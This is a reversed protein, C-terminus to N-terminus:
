PAPAPAFPNSLVLGEVREFDRVNRTVLSLGEVLASAAIVADPLKIAHRCRLAITRDVIPPTLEIRPLGRLLREAASRSHEDHGRWGLVEITSIVSLAAGEAFCREVRAIFGPTPDQNLYGMLVNSDLLWRPASVARPGM